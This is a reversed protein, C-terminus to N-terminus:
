LRCSVKGERVDALVEFRAKRLDRVALSSTQLKAIYGQEQDNPFFSVFVFREKDLAFYDIRGGNYFRPVDAFVAWAEADSLGPDESGRSGQVATWIMRAESITLQDLVRVPDVSSLAKYGPLSPLSSTPGDFPCAAAQAMGSAGLGSLLATLAICASSFVHRAQFKM